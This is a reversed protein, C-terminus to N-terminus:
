VEIVTPNDLIKATRTGEEVSGIIWADCDELEKIEKIFGEAGEKSIAMLLGGSTEASYGQMLQFMNGVGMAIKVMNSIIPLTHITFDLNMIKNWKDGEEEM